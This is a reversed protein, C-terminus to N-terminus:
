FVLRHGKNKLLRENRAAGRGSLPYDRSDTFGSRDALEDDELMNRVDQELYKIQLMEERMDIAEAELSRLKSQQTENISRLAKLESMSERMQWYRVGFWLLSIVGVVLLASVLKLLWSPISMRSVSHESHPIFMLTFSSSSRSRLLKLIGIFL